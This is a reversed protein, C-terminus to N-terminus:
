VVQAVGAQNFQAADEYRPFAGLLVASVLSAATAATVNLRIFSFGNAVDLDAAKMNLIVQRNNGGAALLQTIAKAPSIDKVSTGSGDVAQQFKADVTGTATMAGVDILAMYAFFNGANVWGTNQAASSSSPDITALVALHESPKANPTM